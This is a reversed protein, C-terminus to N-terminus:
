FEYSAFYHLKSQIIPGGFSGGIQQNEYPLVVNTIKDKANLRDDRFFGYLSGSNTNTGSRSIAQM